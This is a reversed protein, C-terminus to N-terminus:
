VPIPYYFREQGIYSIGLHKRVRTIGTFLIRHEEDNYDIHEPRDTVVLVNDFEMGKAAHITDIRVIDSIGQEYYAGIKQKEPGSVNLYHVVRGKGLSGRFIDHYGLLTLQTLKSLEHKKAATKVGRVLVSAPLHNVLYEEQPILINPYDHLIETLMISRETWGNRLPHGRNLPLTPMSILSAVYRALRNTRALITKQGEIRLFLSLNTRFIETDGIGTYHKPIRHAVASMIREGLERVNDGFRYSHPLEIIEGREMVRIFEDTSTGRFSFINQDPDGAYVKQRAPWMDIIRHMLGTLDQAEDVVLTDVPPLDANSAKLLVDTYDEKGKEAKYKEYATKLRSLNLTEHYGIGKGTNASRDYASIFQSWDDNAEEPTAEMVWRQPYTLKERACFDIIDQYSMWSHMGLIKSLISHLTGVRNEDSQLRKRASAAMSRSYTLYLFDTRDKLMREIYTTKGTGPSGLISLQDM